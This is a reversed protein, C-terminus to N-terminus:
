DGSATYADFFPEDKEKKEVEYSGPTPKVLSKLLWIWLFPLAWIMFYHFAKM